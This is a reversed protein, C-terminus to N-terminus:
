KEKQLYVNQQNDTELSLIFDVWDALSQHRSLHRKGVVPLVTVHASATLITARITGLLELVFAKDAAQGIELVAGNENSYKEISDGDCVDDEDVFEIFNKVDDFDINAQSQHNFSM